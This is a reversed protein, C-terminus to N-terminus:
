GGVLKQLADRTEASQEALRVLERALGDTWQDVSIETNKLTIGRVKKMITATFAGRASREIKYSDETFHVTITEVSKKRSFLGGQRKVETLQPVAAELKAALAELLDTSEGSEMGLYATIASFQLSDDLEEFM